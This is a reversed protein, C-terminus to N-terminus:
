PTTVADLLALTFTCTHMVRGSGDKEVVRLTDGGFYGRMIKLLADDSLAPDDLGLAAYPTEKERLAARVTLGAAAILARLAEKSPPSALYDVITATVGANRILALTNRSTGCRANHYIIADM